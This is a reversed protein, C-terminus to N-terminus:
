SSMSCLDYSQILTNNVLSICLIHHDEMDGSEFSGGTRYIYAIIIFEIISCVRAGRRRMRLNGQQPGSGVYNAVLLVGGPNWTYRGFVPSVSKAM